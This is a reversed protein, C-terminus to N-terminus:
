NPACYVRDTGVPTWIEASGLVMREGSWDIWIRELSCHECYHYGRMQNARHTFAAKTLAEIFEVPSSGVPFSDPGLWGFAICTVGDRVKAGHPTYVEGDKLYM